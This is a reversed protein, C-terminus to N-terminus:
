RPQPVLMTMPTASDPLSIAVRGNWNTVPRLQRPVANPPALPRVSTGLITSQYMSPFIAISGIIVWVNFSSSMLLPKSSICAPWLMRETTRYQSHAIPTAPQQPTSPSKAHGLRAGGGVDIEGVLKTLKGLMPRRLDDGAVVVIFHPQHLGFAFEDPVLMVFGVLQEQDKLALEVHVEAVSRDGHLSTLQQDHWAAGFM